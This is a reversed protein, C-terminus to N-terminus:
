SSWSATSVPGSFTNTSPIWIGRRRARNGCRPPSKARAQPGHQPPRGVGAQPRVFRRAGTVDPLNAIPQASGARLGPALNVYRRNATVVGCLIYTSPTREVPSIPGVSASPAVAGSVRLCFSRRSTQIQFTVGRADASPIVNEPVLVSPASSRALSAPLARHDTEIAVSENQGGSGLGAGGPAGPPGSGSCM